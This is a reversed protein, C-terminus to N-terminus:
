VTIETIEFDIGKSLKRIMRDNPAMINSNLDETFGSSTVLALVYCDESAM